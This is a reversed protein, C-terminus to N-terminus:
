NEAVFFTDVKSNSFFDNRLSVLFSLLYDLKSVFSSDFDAVRTKRLFYLSFSPLLDCSKRVM